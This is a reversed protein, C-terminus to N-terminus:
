YVLVRTGTPITDYIWKADDFALRVCGHSLQEGLRGDQVRFTGQDYLISHFLYDHYFQTWYYCTYGSGFSYGRSGVTFTGKVTPTSPKGPSCTFRYICTWNGYSGTYVGVFCNETDVALIYNTNSAYEQITRNMIYYHWPLVEDAMVWFNTSAICENGMYIDAYFTCPNYFQDLSVDAKWLNNGVHYGEYWVMDNFGGLVSWVPVRMSGVTKPNKIYICRRGSSYDGTVFAYNSVKMDSHTTDIYSRVGNKGDVYVDSTYTGEQGLHRSADVAAIWSGDSQLEASHWYIDGGKSANSWSPVYIAAVGSKSEINSVRVKYFGNGSTIVSVSDTAGKLESITFEGTAAVKQQGAVYAYAHVIYKGSTRHNSIPIKVEWGDAKKAAAYWILDDGGGIESWTPMQVKEAKAFYGGTGKLTVFTEDASVDIALNADSIKVVGSTSAAYSYIGNGCAIYADILYEGPDRNASACSMEVTWTGNQGRMAQYWILDKGKGAKSWSAVRVSNAGSPSNINSIEVTFTGGDLQAQSQPLIAM